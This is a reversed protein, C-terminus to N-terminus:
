GHSAEGTQGPRGGDAGAVQRAFHGLADLFRRVTQEAFLQSDYELSLRIGGGAREAAILCLDFKSTEFARAFGEQQAAAGSDELGDVAGGDLRVDTFNQFTYVVNFLAQRNARRMPNMQQVLLDLPYDRHEMAEGVARDVEALLGALDMGDVIRSRIPLVNVFLGVLHELDRHDRGAIGLGVCLDGQGSLKFLLLKFLALLVTALTTRRALALAGLRQADAADLDVYVTSGRFAREKDPTFDCPLAIAGPAGALTDLWYCEQARFDRTAQWEAYDRYRVPLPPLPKAHGVQAAAGAEAAVGTQATAYLVRLDRAMVTMSWGDGIIHHVTFLFVHERDGLRLLTARFLPAVALDFPTVADREGIERARGGPDPAASLDIVRLETPVTAHIIQRPEGDVDAFTTRLAEHREVLETLARALAAADLAGRLTTAEPMNYARAGGLWHLMWLRKQAHSLPYHPRDPARPIVEAPMRAPDKLVAALEAATPHLFLERLPLRVDLDRQVRSVVQIAKLSHGGHEFFHDHVGLARAGLVDRFVALVQAETETRPAVSTAADSADPPPLRRRDVKGHGTLPLEDLCVIRAPVMYDPLREALFARLAAVSATGQVYACLETPDDAPLAVVAARVVHQHEALRAEIEGPEIRHGRIKVQDDIRGLCLISGDPLWCSLDGTRYLTGAPPIPSPVFRERNLEPRRLYGRSVGAGGIHIEGPVEIPVPQGDHGLICVRSNAIPRGILIRADTDTVDAAICGVTTETPGYENVIRIGPAPVTLARVQRPTLAEGGVIALGVSISPLRLEELLTLHSPTLKVWDIASEPGFISALVDPLEADPAFTEISGGTVLPLLLCTLTLDFTLSTFLATRPAPPFGARELYHGAAWDLYAALNRHEVQCGKPRGTSGSTYIIYALAEPRVPPLASSGEPCAGSLPSSFYEGEGQPLPNPPPTPRFNAGIAGEGWGRGELPPPTNKEADWKEQRKHPLVPAGPRPAEAVIVHRVGAARLRDADAAGAICTECGADELLEALRATPTRPDLPLFAGGARMVGLVAPVAEVSPPLLVGVPAEPRLRLVALHGALAAARADLERYTWAGGPFHVAVRDPSRAAQAAFREPVTWTPAPGPAPNFAHLVLAAEDPALATIERTPRDPDEILRDIACALHDAIRAVQRGSYRDERYVLRFRLCDGPVVVLGFPYHTYDVATLETIAIPADGGAPRGADVPYTEVTVVHDILERGLATQAQIEALPLHQHPESELAARQLVAFLSPLPADPDPRARVAVTNIFLGVMSEVGALGPPRGSVVAGFVVDPQDAYRSLLAGWLARVVTSLTTGRDAALKLLRRTRGRDLELCRESVADSGPRDPMVAHPIRAPRDYGDLSDRWFARAADRDRGALGSIHDAYPGAPPLDAPQGVRFRDYLVGFERYLVGMSWGDLVLHHYTWVAISCHEATRFLALRLLKDRALDFGRARDRERYDAIRREQAAADLGRLDEALWEPPRQRFVVQIPRPLDHQFFVARLAPHRAALADWAQRFCAADLAGDVRYGMQVVYARAEPAHLTEFLLGEQLPALGYVDDIDGADLAQRRLFADYEALTLPCDTFDSPTKACVQQAACHQAVARLEEAFAAMLAEMRLPPHRTPQYIIGLNMVGGAAVAIIELEHDRACDEAVARGTRGDALRFLPEASGESVEGLYNFSLRPRGSLAPGPTLYRLVGYGIGHRPVGRLAEKVHRIQTGLDDGQLSLVFPFTATFWGVTRGVDLGAAIPERGHGELTLLTQRGGDCRELARALACLLLDNIGTRYAHHTGTLLLGTDAASLLVHLARATGWRGSGDASAQTPAAAEVTRWYDREAALAPDGALTELALAWRQFSATKPGLDIPVGRAHQRCARELDEILIRWSVGDVVLHHVVLLLFDAEATRYLVARFLPGEGLHLSRQMDDAHRDLAAAADQEATLDVLALAAGASAGASGYRQVVGDPGREFRMRLADHHDALAGVAADLMGPDLRERARLLMDQNFHRQAGCHEFFWRQIPTLPLTGAAPAEAVAPEQAQELRRALEAIRPYRFVDAIALRWGLRGLRSVVQISKISDNGCDFLNDTVGVWRGGLVGAFVEQLVQERADGPAGEPPVELGDGPTPDPLAARDIKGSSNLPMRALAVFDAPIMFDPLSSALFQRLEAADIPRRATYWCCLELTGVSTRRPVVVVEAVAPHQALRSEIEGPEVRFGRVKVQNDIRGAFTLAGDAQWCGFDGTRYLREGRRFPHPVFRQATLAARGLYGLALGDGGVHIEGPVGIPQPRGQGNLVHVTTNAIPRGIPVDAGPPETVPFWTSFTTNETPGYVHLLDLDPCARRVADMYAPSVREGGTLLVRLPQFVAADAEALQNFLSTTLFMVSVGDRAIVARLAGPDLL